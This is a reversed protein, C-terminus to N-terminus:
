MSGSAFTNWYALAEPASALTKAVSKSAELLEKAVIDLMEVRNRNEVKARICMYNVTDGNLEEKYYSLFDNIVGIWFNMDPLAQFFTVEDRTSTRPHYIIVAYAIGLGSCDRMFGPHRLTTQISPLAEMNAVCTVAVFNFTSILFMNAFLPPYSACMRRVVEDYWQLVPDLQPLRNCYREQFEKFPRPNKEAADDIYLVLCSYMAMDLKEQWPHTKVCLEAFSSGLSVHKEAIPSTINRFKIEVWLAVEIEENYGNLNFEEITRGEIVRETGSPSEVSM